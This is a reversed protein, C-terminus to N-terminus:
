ITNNVRERIEALTTEKILRGDRFITELCGRQEADEAVEDIAFYEGSDRKSVFILGKLSNKTGDDTKPKKFIPKLKGNIRVATAKVAFGLSDRSKFQYEFSGRALVLNCAAMNSKELRDYIEKQRELTIADGYIMGVHSDPYLYGKETKNWGFIEGLMYYAGYYEEKSCEKYDSVKNDYWGRNETYWYHVVDNEDVTKKTYYKPNTRIGCIIDAPNGSDPRIIVRGDRAMIQDKFM